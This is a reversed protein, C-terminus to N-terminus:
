EKENWCHLTDHTWEHCTMTAQVRASPIINMVLLLPFAFPPLALSLGFKEHCSISMTTIVHCCYWCFYIAFHLNSVNYLHNMWSCSWFFSLISTSKQHQLTFDQNLLIWNGKCPRNELYEDLVVRQDVWSIEFGLLELELDNEIAHEVCIWRDNAKRRCRVNVNNADNELELWTM